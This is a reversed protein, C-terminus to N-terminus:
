PSATGISPLCFPLFGQFYLPKRPPGASNGSHATGFSGLLEAINRRAWIAGRVVGSLRSFSLKWGSVHRLYRLLLHALLAAWIQWRVANENYGLFDRIQCNQKLEKFFLEVAWRARYLEAITKASWKFNNTLFVMRTMRGDVEVMATVRRLIGGDATYEGATRSLAPRVREDGLILVRKGKEPARGDPGGTGGVTEMRMNRKERVVFFVGRLALAGLFKFDTYARDAVLIDGDGLNRTARAAERSDHRGAGGVVAFSPLRSALDLNMHLKAAAKKRRHRAWDISNVVLQITSSDLLHIHRCGFRKLFGAHPPVAFDPELSGLHGMMSWYLREIMAPDRRRNANSFTNRRPVQADRLEQWQSAMTAAVDCVGNLSETKDLQQYLLAVVHSWPTFTRSLDRVGKQCDHFISPPILKVIQTLIPYVTKTAKPPQAKEKKM